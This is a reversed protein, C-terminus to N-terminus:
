FIKKGGGPARFVGVMFLLFPSYYTWIPGKIRPHSVVLLIAKRPAGDEFPLPIADRIRDLDEEGIM